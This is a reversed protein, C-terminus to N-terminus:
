PVDLSAMLVMLREFHQKIEQSTCDHNNAIMSFALLKGNKNKVYGAYSRVRTMYGSKAKINGEAITGEGIKRLTGSEGAVPLTAYFNYFLSTDNAYMALAQTLQRATITNFRSVGSGDVMCLGNLDINNERWYDIIANVGGATSGYGNLKLSITKLLTEAYFNNSVHNTHLALLSLPSSLHTYITKREAKEYVGALKMQRLTVSSDRVGIGNSKLFNRLSYVCYLAPDPVLSKGIFEADKGAIVGKLYREAVYPSGSVYLYSKTATKDETLKYTLKLNPIKQVPNAVLTNNKKEVKIDYMNECFSLACAGACYDGQMDEWAWGAPILEDDFVEADAIIAGAVSDIGNHKLVKAWQKFVSDAKTAGFVESGLTPDGTGSVYLNGNLIKKEKDIIGDYQIRTAFRYGAGLIKLAAGTTVVKLVSAPVLSQHSNYELMITNSDPNILCFGLSGHAVADSNVLSDLFYKLNGYSSTDSIDSIDVANAAGEKYLSKKESFSDIYFSFSLIFLAIFIFLVVAFQKVTIKKNLLTKMQTIILAFIPRIIDFVPNKFFPM